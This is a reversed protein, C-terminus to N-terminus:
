RVNLGLSTDLGRGCEVGGGHGKSDGPQSATQTAPKSYTQMDKGGGQRFGKRWGWGRGGLFNNTGVAQPTQRTKTEITTTTTTWRSLGCGLGRGRERGHELGHRHRLVQGGVMGM